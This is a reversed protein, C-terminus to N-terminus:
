AGTELLNHLYLWIAHSIVSAPELDEPSEEDELMASGDISQGMRSALKSAETSIVQVVLRKPGVLEFSVQDGPQVDHAEAFLRWGQLCAVRRLQCSNAELVSVSSTRERAKCLKFDRNLCNSATQRIVQNSIQLTYESRDKNRRPAITGQWSNTADVATAIEFDTDILHSLHSHVVRHPLTLKFVPAAGSPPVKQVVLHLTLHFPLAFSYLCIGRNLYATAHAVKYM